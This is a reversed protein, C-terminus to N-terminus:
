GWRVPLNSPGRLYPDTEWQVLGDIVLNPKRRLLERLAIPTVIRALPEGICRHLGGGFSLHGSGNPRDLKLKGPNAFVGAEHNGSGLILALRANKRIRVGSLQLDRWARRDVIQAPADLRLLEDVIRADTAPDDRLLADVMDPADQLHRLGTCILFTASLYGAVTFSVLSSQLSDLSLGGPAQQVLRDILGGPAPKVVGGRMLAQYYAGLALASSLGRFRVIQSQTEDHAIAIQTVWAILTADDRQQPGAHPIGLVRFLVKAPLPLAYSSVLDTSGAPPLRDLLDGAIRQALSGATGIAQAFLPDLTNRLDTHWPPDSHFPGEPLNAAVDAPTLKLPDAGPQPDKRFPCRQPDPVAPDALNTDDLAERLDKYRFVWWSKYPRLKIVGVTRRLRRYTRYPDRLYAPDHPDFSEIQQLLWFVTSRSLCLHRLSAGSCKWADFPSAQTKLLRDIPTLPEPGPDLDLASFTPVTGYLPRLASVEKGGILGAIWALQKLHEGQGGPVAEWSWNSAHHLPALAQGARQGQAILVPQDREGESWLQAANGKDDQWEFLKENPGYPPSGNRPGSSVAIRRTQKPHNGLRRLEDLFEARLPSEVVRGNRLWQRMFQQNAPSDLHGARKQLEPHADRFTHVFWQVALSTYAGQHPTDWTVFCRVGHPSAKPDAIEGARELQERRAQAEHEMRTLAFRAVLGGMSLGILVLEEKTRKHVKLIADEVVGANNQIRDTGQDFQILVLDYGRQLLTQMFAHQHLIPLLYDLGHGGPFGEAVLAPYCLDRAEDKHKDGFFVLAKGTNGSRACRLSFEEDAKTAHTSDTAM